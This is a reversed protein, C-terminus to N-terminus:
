WMILMMSFLEQAETGLVGQGTTCPPSLHEQLLGLLGLM